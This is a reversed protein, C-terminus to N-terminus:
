TGVEEVLRWLSARRELAAAAWDIGRIIAVLVVLGAMVDRANLMSQAFAIVMGVGRTAGLYEGVVAGMLALGAYARCTSLVAVSAAPLYVHRVLTWGRAGLIRAARVVDRDVTRIATDTTLIVPFVALTVVLVIRAGVGFGLWLAILPYLILRPAANAASLLPLTVARVGPLAALATGAGIGLLASAALGTLTVLLTSLAHTLISGSALWRLVTAFIASPASTYFPDIVHLDVGVEWLVVAGALVAARAGPRWLLRGRRGLRPPTWKM